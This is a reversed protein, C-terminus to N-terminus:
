ILSSYEWCQKLGALGALGPLVVVVVQAALGAPRAELTELTIEIGRWWVVGGRGQLGCAALRLDCASM